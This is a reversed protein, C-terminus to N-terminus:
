APASFELDRRSGQTHFYEGYNDLARHILELDIHILDFAM